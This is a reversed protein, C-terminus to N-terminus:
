FSKWVIKGRKNIYGWRDTDGHVIYNESLNVWALDNHFDGIQTYKPPIIFKGEKDIVGFLASKAAYMNGDATIKVDRLGDKTLKESEGIQVVAVGDSFRTEAGMVPEFQPEIIIRGAKDIFGLM